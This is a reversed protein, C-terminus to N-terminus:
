LLLSLRFGCLGLFMRWRISRRYGENRTLRRIFFAPGNPDANRKLIFIIFSVGPICNLIFFILRGTNAAKDEILVMLRYIFTFWFFISFIIKVIKDLSDYWKIYSNM